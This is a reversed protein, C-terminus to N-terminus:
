VIQIGEGRRRTKGDGSGSTSSSSSSERHAKKRRSRRLGVLSVPCKAKVEMQEDGEQAAM